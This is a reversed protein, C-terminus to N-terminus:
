HPADDDAAADAADRDGIVEGFESIAVDDEDVAVLEGGTRGEV